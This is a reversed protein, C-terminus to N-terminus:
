HAPLFNPLLLFNELELETGTIRGRLGLSWSFGSCPLRSDAWVRWQVSTKTGAISFCLSSRFYHFLYKSFCSPVQRQHWDALPPDRKRASHKGAHSTGHSRTSYNRIYLPPFFWAIHINQASCRYQRTRSCCTLHGQLAPGCLLYMRFPLWNIFRCQKAVVAIVEVTIDSSTVDM